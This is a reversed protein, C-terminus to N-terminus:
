VKKFNSFSGLTVFLSKSVSPTRLWSPKPRKKCDWRIPAVFHFSDADAHHRMDVGSLRRQQLRHEVPATRRPPEASHVM